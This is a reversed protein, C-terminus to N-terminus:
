VRVKEIFDLYYVSFLGQYGAYYAINYATKIIKIGNKSNVFLIGALMYVTKNMEPMNEIIQRLGSSGSGLRQIFIFHSFLDAIKFLVFRQYVAAWFPKFLM